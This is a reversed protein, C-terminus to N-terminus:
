STPSRLRVITGREAGLRRAASGDRRAIELQGGSGIYAILAGTEVDSFTRGLQPEFHGAAGDVEVTAEASAREVVEAPL